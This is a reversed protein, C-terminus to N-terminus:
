GLTMAIGLALASIFLWLLCAQVAVKWGLTRLAKPSISAGILCLAAIMGAKAMLGISAACQAVGPVFSRLVSALLCLGIFWPVAARPSSNGAKAHHQQREPHRARHRALVVGMGITLPVIWLARSLKVATATQLAENGYASAAGVVSSIDHIGIGAWVGFQHQSLHLANGIAPFLFLAAANLLFIAGVAIGMESESAAIVPGVAAIASGGCIATGSAILASTKRGIGLLHGILFGIALTATISAAAFLFGSMGARLVKELDMGFGLLVVCGQFLWKSIANGLRRHPHGIALSFLMGALLAVGLSGWWILGAVTAIFLGTQVPLPVPAPRTIMEADRAPTKCRDENMHGCLTIAREFYFLSM